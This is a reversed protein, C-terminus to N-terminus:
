RERTIHAIRVPNEKTMARIRGKSKGERGKADRRTGRDSGPALEKRHIREPQAPGAAAALGTVHTM